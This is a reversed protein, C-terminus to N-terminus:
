AYPPFFGAARREAECVSERGIWVFNRKTQAFAAATICIHGCFLRSPMYATGASDSTRDRKRFAGPIYVPLTGAPPLFAKCLRGATRRYEEPRPRTQESTKAALEQMRCSPASGGRKGYGRYVVRRRAPARLMKCAGYACAPPRRIRQRILACVPPGGNKKCRIAATGTRKECRARRRCCSRRRQWPCASSM